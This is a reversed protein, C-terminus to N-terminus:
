EHGGFFESLTAALASPAQVSPIHGGEIVRHQAGPVQQSIVAIDAPPRVLDYKGSVFLTKTVINPLTEGLDSVSLARVIHAYSTPDNTLFRAVYANYDDEPERLNEPYSRALAADVIGRMGLKDATDARARLIEGSRGSANTPPNIAALRHVRDPYRSALVLGICGGLAVGAVDVPDKIKLNDLLAIIDEVLVDVTVTSRIKESGGSGRADCRLVRRDLAMEALVPNWSELSGGMEHLLLLPRGGGGSDTYRLSVDPLGAWLPTSGEATRESESLTTEETLTM